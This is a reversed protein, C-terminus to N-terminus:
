EPLGAPAKSSVADIPDPLKAEADNSVAVAHWAKKSGTDVGCKDAKCAVVQYYLAGESPAPITGAFGGIGGSEDAALDISKDAGAADRLLVVMTAPADEEKGPTAQARINLNSGPSIRVVPKHAFLYLEDSKGGKFELSYPKKPDGDGQITRQKKEDTFSFLYELTGNTLAAPVALEWTDGEKNTLPITAKWKADGKNRVYAVGKGDAIKNGTVKVTLTLAEGAKADTPKEHEIVPAPKDGEAAAPTEAAATEAPKEEPPAEAPQSEPEKKKRKGGGRRKKPTDDSAVMQGGGKGITKPNGADGYKAPGNGLEDIATLYYEVNNGFSFSAAFDDGGKNVLKTEEYKTDGPKRYFVKAELVGTQDTIKATISVKGGKAGANVSAFVPPATDDARAGSSLLALLGLVPLARRLFTTM